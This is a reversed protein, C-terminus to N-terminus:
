IAESKMDIARGIPRELFERTVPARKGSGLTISKFAVKITLTTTGVDMYALPTGGGQAPIVPIANYQMDMDMQTVEGEVGAIALARSISDVLDDRVTLTESRTARM